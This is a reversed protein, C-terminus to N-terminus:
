NDPFLGAPWSNPWQALKSQVFQKRTNCDDVESQRAAVERRLKELEGKKTAIEDNLRIEDARLKRMENLQEQTIMSTCGAMFASGSVALILLGVSLRSKM